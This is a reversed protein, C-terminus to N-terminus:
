KDASNPRSIRGLKVLRAEIGGKTRGHEKAIEALPMKSDFEDLLKNDEMETWPKGANSPQKKSQSSPKSETQSSVNEFVEKLLIKKEFGGREELKKKRVKTLEEWTYGRAKVVAGMVELLDALEELSKSEQYEELEETLKADLMAIYKEGTLTEVTCTKGNSEIIEPIKDRVLKNYVKASKLAVPEVEKTKLYKKYYFDFPQPCCYYQKAIADANLEFLYQISDLPSGNEVKTKVWSAPTQGLRHYFAGEFAEPSPDIHIKRKKPRHRKEM